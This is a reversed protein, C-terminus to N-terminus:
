LNPSKCPDFVMCCFHRYQSVIIKALDALSAEISLLTSSYIKSVREEEACGDTNLTKRLYISTRVREATQDLLVNSFEVEVFEVEVLEVAICCSGNDRKWYNGSFLRVYRLKQFGTISVKKYTASLPRRSERSSSRSGNKSASMEKECKEIEKKLKERRQQDSVLFFMFQFLYVSLRIVIM